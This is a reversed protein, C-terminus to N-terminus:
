AKEVRNIEGNLCVALVRRLAMCLFTRHFPGVQTTSTGSIFM